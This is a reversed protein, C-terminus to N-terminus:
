TLINKRLLGRLCNEIMKYFFCLAIKESEM